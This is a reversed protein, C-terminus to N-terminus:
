IIGFLVKWSYVFEMVEEHTSSIGAHGNGRISSHIVGIIEFDGNLVAAGSCGSQTPLTYVDDPDIPDYIRGSYRGEFIPVMGPSVFGGPAAISYVKEGLIPGEYAFSVPSTWVGEVKLICLDKLIDNFVVEANRKNGNFDVISNEVVVAGDGFITAVDSYFPPTCVHDASLVYSYEEEVHIVIGSGMATAERVLGDSELVVTSEVLSFADVPIFGGEQKKLLNLQKGHLGLVFCVMILTAFLLLRTIKDVRM